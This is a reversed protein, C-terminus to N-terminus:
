SNNKLTVSGSVTNGSYTFGGTNNTITVSGSITNNTFTVGGSNGSVTASGSQKNGSYVFGGKNNSATVSGSITNGVVTVGATNGSLTVSSSLKNGACGSGSAGGLQVLGSSSSVTLSGSLTTGCLTLAKAGSATVAGSLTGGSVYLSGGSQVTISGSVKGGQICYATGSKITLSGSLSGTQCAQSFGVTITRSATVTNYDTTDTPKFTVSLTQTGPQLLTGAAPSYVFTGAVSASANLQASGLVAGFLLSAPNWTITPDAKVSYTLTSTATNGAGDTAKATLTHPGLTASYGTVMCGTVGSLADTASCTISSQAPLTGPSYTAGDTIGDFTPKTPPTTDILYAATATDGESDHAVVIHVGDGSLTVPGATPPGGDVSVSVTADAATTGATVTLSGHYWAGTDAPRSPSITLTGASVNGPPLAQADFYNGKNSSYGCNGAADCAEVFYQVDPGTFPVGASWTGTAQDQHLQLPHWHGSGDDYVVQAFVVTGPNGNQDLDSFRGTFALVDDPQGADSEFASISDITPPTFDQSTSYTVRGGIQTWLREVGGGSSQTFFQGTALNLNQNQGLSVLTPIKEPWSEDTFSPPPEDAAANLTPRVNDPTFPTNDQSTLADVVVGHAYLGPSDSRGAPLSVYPQLPRYNPAQVQGANTFFDGNAGHQEASFSPTVAFNASQVGSGPFSSLSGTSPSTSASAGNVPDPPPDTPDALSHPSHGIGYMPLGYLEAESLAKEDYNSFDVRSLYYQQKAQMLANGLTSTGTLQGAFDAMLEESFAVSDTEGLGFGTNGVFGTDHQAFYQPWDLVSSGVVADTTQFGAHCGMTFFIGGNLGAPVDSTSIIDGNAMQARYNDYHGNWSNIDAPTGTGDPPFAADLLDNTGFLTSEAAGLPDILTSRVNVGNTALNDAVSQAGDAVFDYGSVFGTSSKLAGSSSEFSTVANTIDQATEVLRGGSLNPPFLQQGSAPVPQTDLYPDDSLLDGAALSGGYENAGLGTFGSENAILSLDPLRFFPIQDDGGAFVVYKVSPRAAVIADVENAIANAVANASGPDCPNSDWTDYLSQVGPITEVPVVTGSVGLAADGALSHLKAVANAEDTSGYTDGLRLENVLVITNLNSPLSSLSPLSDPTSGTSPLVRAPCIQTAPPASERVRLTYADPSSAGNYGFVAITVQGGGGPSVMGVDEDDQHRNDSLQVLPIGPDPVDELGTPTLQGSSGGNLDVQTDPVVGDQLPPALNSTTRVSTTQPSYLALDYDAPLDTLHVSIRTGAPPMDIKYYDVAGATPLASMEVTEHGPTTDISTANPASDADPFSDTVSFSAISSSSKGGANVTETAQTPGVTTGALADFGITYPQGADVADLHWDLTYSDASSSTITPDSLPTGSGGNESLVASGPKYDFGAPLDITVDASPSGTGQVTFGATMPLQNRSPDFITLLDPALSEWSVDTSRILLGVVDGFTVLSAYASNPGRITDLLQEITVGQFFDGQDLDGVLTSPKIAGAAQAQALTGTSCDFTTPDTCDFLADVNPLSGVLLDGIGGPATLDTQGLQMGVIGSASGSLDDLPTQGLQTQGLQTHGLQTQGLQTQGLQLTDVPAGILGLQMLSFYGIGPDAGTCFGGPDGAPVISMCWDQLQSEIQSQLTGGLQNILSPGLTLADMTIQGLTSDPLDVDAFTLNQIRAVADAPGTLSYVDDLTITQLPQGALSTGQLVDSWGNPYETPDDLPVLNLTLGTQALQTHGLQTQGLQTHGLQTQGLQTQGLQTQGLQTHGLQTHGLQTQGLQTQGLQTHGLQTQGLQTQGLQTHGLQTQGLQTHGLQANQITIPPAGPPQPDFAALPINSIPVTGSMEVSQGSGFSASAGTATSSPGSLAVAYIAADDCGFSPCTGATEVWNVTLQQGASAAAYDITFVGPDNDGTGSNDGDSSTVTQTYPQASGDSLTATLTGTAWHASTYITVTRQTTGAPVTFSFGDGNTGVLGPQGDHELGASAGTASSPVTGDSWDFGFPEDGVSAFQGLGRLPAGNAHVDTLDSIGSGGAKRVDPALSTSTGSNAYGWVAWDETGLSTLDAHQVVDTSLQGSLTGGGSGGVQTGWNPFSNRSPASGFTLEVQNTGDADATFVNFNQGGLDRTFAIQRGDPSWAPDADFIPAQTLNQQDTGDANMLFVSEGGGCIPPEASGGPACRTGVFLIKSGDPSWHPNTNVGDTTLPGTVTGSAVDVTYIENTGNTDDNFAIQSGDPSWSSGGVNGDTTMVQTQGSGDANMVFLQFNGNRNSDFAIKQGDPSFTPQENAGQTTLRRPDTGNGNIAWIQSVGGTTTSQYVVTHGDPSISPLTDTVDSADHTLQTVNSGDPSMTFIQSNGTRNSEFAISEPLVLEFAGIDCHAGQPRTVGRQDVSACTSDDGADVAPSDAALAMTPTPGGNDQLPGLKPDTNPLDSPDSFACSGDSDLNHGTSSFTAATVACDGQTNGAVISNAMTTPGAAVDIGPGFNGAITVNDLSAGQNAYDVDVGLGGNDAITTNVASFTSEVYIGGTSTGGNGSITSGSVTLGDNTSEIGWSGNDQLVGDDLEVSGNDYIGDGSSNEVTVGKITTTDSGGVDFVRSTTDNGDLITDAAGAGAFTLGAGTGITGDLNGIDYHGAAIHITAPVEFDEAEATAADIEDVTSVYYDAPPSSPDTYEHAGIDCGAGQPRAVFLEDTQPCDILNGKDIAPSGSQLPLVDIPLNIDPSGLGVSAPDVDSQDSLATLGCTGDDDLNGGNSAIPTSCESLIGNERNDALLTNTLFVTHPDIGNVAIGAGAATSSSNKAITDNLLTAGNGDLYLGGGGGEGTNNYITSNTISLSSGFDAIGGGGGAGSESGDNFEITSRVVTLSGANYIGGGAVDAANGYVESDQLTLSAGSDVYIGGGLGPHPEDADDVATGGDIKVGDLTVNGSVVEIDREANSFIETNRAGQGVIKMDSQPMLEGLDFDIQYRGQQQLEITNTSGSIGAACGGVAQDTNASAIADRLTCTGAAASGDDTTNVVITAGGPGAAATAPFGLLTLLAVAALLGLLGARASSRGRIKGVATMARGLAAVM